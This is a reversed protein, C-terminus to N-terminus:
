IKVPLCIKKAELLGVLLSGISWSLRDRYLHFTIQQEPPHLLLFLYRGSLSPVLYVARGVQCAAEM